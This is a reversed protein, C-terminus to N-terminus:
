IIVESILSCIRSTHFYDFQLWCILLSVLIHTQLNRVQQRDPCNIRAYFEMTYTSVLIGSGSILGFWMFINGGVNESNRLFTLALGFGGFLTLLVPFFFNFSFSLVYEHFLSSVLFVLVTPIAKNYKALGMEWADKLVCILFNVCQIYFKM